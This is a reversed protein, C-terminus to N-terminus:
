SLSHIVRQCSAKFNEFQQLDVAAHPGNDAYFLGIPKNRLFISMALFGDPNIINRLAAPIM